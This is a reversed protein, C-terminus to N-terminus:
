VNQKFHKYPEVTKLSSFRTGTVIFFVYTPNINNKNQEDKNGKTRPSYITQGQLFTCDIKQDLLVSWFGPRLYSWSRLYTDIKKVWCLAQHLLIANTTLYKCPNLLFYTLNGMRIDIMTKELKVYPNLLRSGWFCVFALFVLCVAGPDPGPRLPGPKEQTQTNRPIM